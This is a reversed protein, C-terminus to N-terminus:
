RTIKRVDFHQGGITAGGMLGREGSVFVAVGKVYDAATSGGSRAAVGSAGADMEFGGSKFQQLESATKLFIIESFTQGGIQAGFSGASLTVYHTAEGHEYLVGDGGAGGFVLGGKGIEPFVVYAAASDFYSKLGPETEKFRAVSATAAAELSTNPSETTRHSASSDCGTLAISAVLSATLSAVLLPSVRM